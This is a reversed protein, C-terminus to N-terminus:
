MVAPIIQDWSVFPRKSLEDGELWDCFFLRGNRPDIFVIDQDDQAFQRAWDIKVGM